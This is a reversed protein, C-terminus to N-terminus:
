SRLQSLRRRQAVGGCGDFVLSTWIREFDCMLHEEPGTGVVDSHRLVTSDDSRQTRKKRYTSLDSILQDYIMDNETHQSSVLGSSFDQTRSGMRAHGYRPFFDLQAEPVPEVNVPESEGTRPPQHFASNCNELAVPNGHIAAITPPGQLTTLKRTGAFFLQM